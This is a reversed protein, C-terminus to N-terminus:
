PGNESSEKRRAIAEEIEVLTPYRGMRAVWAPAMPNSVCLDFWRLAHATDRDKGYPDFPDPTSTSTTPTKARDALSASAPNRDCENSWWTRASAQWDVMPGSKRRWGQSQWYDHFSQAVKAPAGMTALYAACEDVAPPVFRKTREVARAPVSPAMAPDVAPANWRISQRGFLLTFSHLKDAEAEISMWGASELERALMMATRPTSKDSICRALTELSPSPAGVYSSVALWLAKASASLSPDRCLPEPTFAAPM